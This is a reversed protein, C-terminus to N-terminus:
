QVVTDWNNIDDGGGNENRQNPGASWVAPTNANPVKSNPYEYFLRQDWADVPPKELYPSVSLNGNGPNLLLRYAQDRNGEPYEGEHEAAYLKLAGEFGAITLRTADIMGERQYNLYNPVVIAALVLLIGLVLLVEM